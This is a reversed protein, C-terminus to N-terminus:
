EFTSLVHLTWAKRHVQCVQIWGTLSLSATEESNMESFVERPQEGLLLVNM